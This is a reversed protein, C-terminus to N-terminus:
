LFITMQVWVYAAANNFGRKQAQAHLSKWADAQANAFHISSTSPLKRCGDGEFYPM